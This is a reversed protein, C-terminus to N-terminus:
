KKFEEPRSNRLIQDMKEAFTGERMWDTARVSGVPLSVFKKFTYPKTSFLILETSAGGLDLVVSDELLTDDGLDVGKACFYAEGEATLLNIHFGLDAKVRTSFKSFNKAVRSAETATVLTETPSIGLSDLKEKYEKLAAMSSEIGEKSLEGTKDIGKGLGTVRAINVSEFFKNGEYEGALLLISNSGIDISAKM